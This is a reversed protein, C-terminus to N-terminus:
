VVIEPLFVFVLLFNKLVYLFKGYIIQEVQLMLLKWKRLFDPVRVQQIDLKKNNKWELNSQAPL